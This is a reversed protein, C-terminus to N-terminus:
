VSERVARIVADVQADTLEPYVPLSVIEDAAKEVV